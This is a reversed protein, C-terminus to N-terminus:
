KRYIFCYIKTLLKSKEIVGLIEYFIYFITKKPKITSDVEAETTLEVDKEELVEEVNEDKNKRKKM